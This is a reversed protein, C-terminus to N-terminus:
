LILSSLPLNYKDLIEKKKDLIEDDNSLDIKIINGEPTPKIDTEPNNLYQCVPSVECFKDDKYAIDLNYSTYGIYIKGDPFQYTYFQVHPNYSGSSWENIKKLFIVFEDNEM